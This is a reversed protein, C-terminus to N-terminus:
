AAHTSVASEPSDTAPTSQTADQGTASALAQLCQSGSSGMMEAMAAMISDRMAEPMDPANLRLLLPQIKAWDQSFSKQTELRSQMESWVSPPFFNKASELVAASAAQLVDGRIGRSFDRGSMNRKSREDGCLVALVKVLTPAHQDLKFLGGASLDAIDIGTEQQVSDLLLGDLEITWERGEVDKFKAM